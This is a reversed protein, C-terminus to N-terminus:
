VSRTTTPCTTILVIVQGVHVESEGDAVVDVDVAHIHVVQLIFPHRRSIDENKLLM